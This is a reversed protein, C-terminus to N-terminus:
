PPYPIFDSKLKNIDIVETRNLQYKESPTSEEFSSEKKLNFIM